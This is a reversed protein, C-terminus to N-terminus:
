LDSLLADIELFDGQLLSHTAGGPHSAILGAAKMLKLTGARSLYCQCHGSRGQSESFGPFFSCIVERIRQVLLYGAAFGSQNVTLFSRM